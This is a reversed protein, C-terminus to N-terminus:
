PGGGKEKFHKPPLTNVNGWYEPIMRMKEIFEEYKVPKTIYSNSGLGYSQVVDEENASSTLMVVPISRYRSDSKLEKLVELGSKKPMKIDLLILDPRPNNESRVYRLAEEGDKVVHFAYTFGNRASLIAKKILFVHNADDEALLIDIIGNRTMGDM